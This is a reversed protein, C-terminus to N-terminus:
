LGAALPPNTAASLPHYSASQNLLYKYVLFEGRYGLAEFGGLVVM